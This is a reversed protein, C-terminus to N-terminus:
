QAIRRMALTINCFPRTGIGIIMSDNRVEIQKIIEFMMYVNLGSRKMSFTDSDMITLGVTREKLQELLYRYGEVDLGQFCASEGRATRAVLQELEGRKMAERRAKYRKHIMYM